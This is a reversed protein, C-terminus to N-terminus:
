PQRTLVKSTTVSVQITEIDKNEMLEKRSRLIPLHEEELEGTAPTYTIYMTKEEESGLFSFGILPMLAISGVLLVIAIISTIVKHNLVKELVGKYWIALKGAEKHQKKEREGYLKKRFLTHSLVPVITIAVLM